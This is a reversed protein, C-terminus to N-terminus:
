GMTLAQPHSNQPRNAMGDRLLPSPMIKTVGPRAEREGGAKALSPGPTNHGSAGLSLDKHKSLSMSGSVTITSSQGESQHTHTLWLGPEGRGPCVPEVNWACRQRHWAMQGGARTPFTHCSTLATPTNGSVDTMVDKTSTAHGTGPWSRLVQLTLPGSDPGGGLLAGRLSHTGAVKTSHSRPM